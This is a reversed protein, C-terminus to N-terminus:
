VVLVVFIYKGTPLKELYADLPDIQYIWKELKLLNPSKIAMKLENAIISFPNAIVNVNVDKLNNM